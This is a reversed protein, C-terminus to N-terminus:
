HIKSFGNELNKYNIRQGTRFLNFYFLYVTINLIDWYDNKSGNIKKLDM